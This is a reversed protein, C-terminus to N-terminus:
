FLYMGAYGTAFSRSFGYSSVRAPAAARVAGDHLKRGAIVRQPPTLVQLVRDAHDVIRALMRQSRTRVSTAPLLDDFSFTDGAFADLVIEVRARVLANADADESVIAAIKQKQDENLNLMTSWYDLQTRADLDAARTTLVDRFGAVFAERQAPDLIEHMKDFASRLSASAAAAADVAADAQSRLADAQIDGAQVQRWLALLFHSRARDLAAARADVESGIQRLPQSQDARLTVKSVAEDVVRVVDDGPPSAPARSAALPIAVVAASGSILARLFAGM